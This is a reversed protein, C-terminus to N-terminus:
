LLGWNDQEGSNTTLKNFEGEMFARPIKPPIKLVDQVVIIRPDKLLAKAENETLEYHTNRRNLPRENVCTCVRDPIINSDISADDSTDKCLEDHLKKWDADKKVTVIYEAM